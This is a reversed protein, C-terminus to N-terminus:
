PFNHPDRSVYPLLCLRYTQTHLLQVVVSNTCTTHQIRKQSTIMTDFVFSEGSATDSGFVETSFTGSVMRQLGGELVAVFVTAVADVGETVTNM